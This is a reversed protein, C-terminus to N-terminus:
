LFLLGSHNSMVEFHALIKYIVLYINFHYTNKNIYVFFHFKKEFIDQLNGFIHKVCGWLHVHSVELLHDSTERSYLIM